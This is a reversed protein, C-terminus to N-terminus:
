HYLVYIDFHCFYPLIYYVLCKLAKEPESQLSFQRHQGCKIADTSLTATHM